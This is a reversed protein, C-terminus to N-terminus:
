QPEKQRNDVAERVRRTLQTPSGPSTGRAQRLRPARQAQQDEPSMTPSFQAEYASAIMNTELIPASYTETVSGKLKSWITWHSKEAPKMGKLKSEDLRGGYIFQIQPILFTEKDVWLVLDHANFQGDLVYCDRNNVKADLGPGNTKAFADAMRAVSNTDDFFLQALTVCQVQSINGITGMATQRNKVKSAPGGGYGLYDGKGASWAVGPSSVGDAVTDWELRYFNTRGMELSVGQSMTVQPKGKEIESVDITAVAHGKVVYNTLSKYKDAVNQLIEDTALEPPPPPPPENTPAVPTAPLQPKVYKAYTTAGLESIPKWFILLLIIAGASSGLWIYLKKHDKKKRTIVAAPASTAAHSTTSPAMSLRSGQPTAPMEPAGPIVIPKQCSPCTIQMGSYESTAAISQQCNPCAFKFESM